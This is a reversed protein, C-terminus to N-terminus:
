LLCSPFLLLISVHFHPFLYLCGWLRHCVPVCVILQRGSLFRMNGGEEVARGNDRYVGERGISSRDGVIAM